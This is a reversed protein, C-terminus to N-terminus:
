SYLFFPLANNELICLYVTTSHAIVPCLGQMSYMQGAGSVKYYSGQVVNSISSLSSFVRQRLPPADRTLSPHSSIHDHPCCSNVNRMYVFLVCARGDGKKWHMVPRTISASNLLISSLFISPFSIYHGSSPPPFCCSQFGHHLPTTVSRPVM